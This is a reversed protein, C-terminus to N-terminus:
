IVCFLDPLLPLTTANHNTATKEAWGSVSDNPYSQIDKYDHFIYIFIYPASSPEVYGFCLFNLCPPPSLRPSYSKCLELEILEIYSLQFMTPERTMCYLNWDIAAHWKSFIEKCFSYVCLGFSVLSKPQIIHLFIWCNRKTRLTLPVTM